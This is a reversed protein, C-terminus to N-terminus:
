AVREEHGLALALVEERTIAGRERVAVVSGGRMVAVRDSLGMVEALDSSIALVGLGQEVLECLLAYIEARAGIDIGQTPEDLLLVSPEAALWRALAVKQQNGGPLPRGLRGL